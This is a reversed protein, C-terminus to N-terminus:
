TGTSTGHQRHARWGVVPECAFCYAVDCPKIAVCKQLVPVADGFNGEEILGSGIDWLAYAEQESEHGPYLGFGLCNTIFERASSVLLQSENRQIAFTRTGINDTCANRRAIQEVKDALTQGSATAPAVLWGFCVFLVLTAILSSIRQPHM